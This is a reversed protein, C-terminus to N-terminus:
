QVRSGLGLLLGAIVGVGLALLVALLAYLPHRCRGLGSV